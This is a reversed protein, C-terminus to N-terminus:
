DIDQATIQAVGPVLRDAVAARGEVRHHDARAHKPGGAGFLEIAPRVQTDEDQLGAAEQNRLMDLVQGAYAQVRGSGDPDLCVRLVRTRALTDPACWPAALDGERAEGVAQAAAREVPTAPCWPQGGGVERGPRRCEAVIQAVSAM